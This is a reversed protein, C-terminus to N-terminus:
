YEKMWGSRVYRKTEARERKRRPTAYYADYSCMPCGCGSALRSRWFEMSTAWHCTNAQPLAAREKYPADSAPHETLWEGQYKWLCDYEGVNEVTPREPLECVGNTHDHIEEVWSPYYLAKVSYPATKDTRSMRATM